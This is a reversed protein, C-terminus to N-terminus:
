IRWLPQRKLVKAELLLSLILMDSIFEWLLFPKIPLWYVKESTIKYFHRLLASVMSEKKTKIELFFIACGEAIM